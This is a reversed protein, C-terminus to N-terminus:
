AAVEALAAEVAERSVTHGAEELAKVAADLFSPKTPWKPNEGKFLSNDRTAETAHAMIFDRASMPAGGDVIFNEPNRKSTSGGGSSAKRPASARAKVNVGCQLVPGNEGEGAQFTWYVSTVPERLLEALKSSGVLVMIAQAIQSTEDSIALANHDKFLSKHSTVAAAYAVAEATFDEGAQAKTAISAQLEGMKQTAAALKDAPTVLTENDTTM